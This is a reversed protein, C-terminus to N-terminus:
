VSRVQEDNGRGQVLRILFIAMIVLIGAAVAQGAWSRDARAIPKPAPPPAQARIQQARAEAREHLSVVMADRFRLRTEYRQRGVSVQEALSIQAQKEIYSAQDEPSANQVVAPIPQAARCPVLTAVMLGTAVFSAFRQILLHCIM